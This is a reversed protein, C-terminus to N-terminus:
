VTPWASRRLDGHLPHVAWCAGVVAAPRAGPRWARRALGRAAAGRRGGAAHGGCGLNRSHAGAVEVAQQQRARDRHDAGRRTGAADPGGHPAVQALAAVPAPQMRDMSPMVREVALRHMRAEAVQGLRGVERHQARRRGGDGRQHGLQAPEARAGGGHQGGPEVRGLPAVRQGGRPRVPQPQQAGAPKPRIVGRSPSLALTAGVSARGPSSANTDCDPASSVAMSSQARVRPMPKECRTASPSRASTSTPSRSSWRPLSGAM